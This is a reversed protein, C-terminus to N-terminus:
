DVTQGKSRLICKHCVDFGCPWCKFVFPFDKYFDKCVDCKFTDKPYVKFEDPEGELNLKFVKHLFHGKPCFRCKGCLDFFCEDCHLVGKVTANEVRSCGNCIFTDESYVNGLQKTFKMQKSCKMCPFYFPKITKHPSESFSITQKTMPITESFKPFALQDSAVTLFSKSFEPDDNNLLSFSNKNTM